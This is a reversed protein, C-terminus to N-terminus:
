AGSSATSASCNRRAAVRGAPRSVRMSASALRRTAAMRALALPMPPMSASSRSYESEVGSPRASITSASPRNRTGSSAVASRSISSLSPWPPKAAPGSVRGSEIRTLADAQASPSPARSTLAVSVGSPTRRPTTRRSPRGVTRAAM